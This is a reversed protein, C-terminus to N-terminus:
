WPEVAVATRARGQHELLDGASVLGVLRGGETVPLHRFGHRAMVLAAREARADSEITVPDVTMYEAVLAQAPDRGDALARLLDRETFIGAARAGEVIVLAGVSRAHMLAAAQALTQGRDGAVVTPTM